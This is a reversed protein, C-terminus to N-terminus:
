GRASHREMAALRGDARSLHLVWFAGKRLSPQQPVPADLRGLAARVLGSVLEGHTCVATPVGEDILADLAARAAEADVTTGTRASYATFARETRMPAGNAASYPTVTEVCRAAESSVVRVTGLAPLVRALADADGCGAADLPRLLDDGDRGGKSGASAHRLLVLPVTEAPGAAFADLVEADSGYTLRDRARDVPLWALADVEDGPEFRSEGRATAAWWEVQKPWGDKLYRQPPLRRGLVPLLGTEEATERVAAGLVHERNKVKGKPLTWDAREPRHVLAVEREGPEGRWLVAGAARIPELYGGPPIGRGPAADAATDPVRPHDSM